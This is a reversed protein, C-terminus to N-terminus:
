GMSGNVAAEREVDEEKGGLVWLKRLAKAHNEEGDGIEVPRGLCEVSVHSGKGYRWVCWASSATSLLFCKGKASRM